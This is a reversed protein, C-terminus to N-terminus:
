ARQKPTTAIFDKLYFPEFYAVDEFREERYAHNALRSLYSASNKFGAIVEIHKEAAFLAALKDAGSGFLVMSQSSGLYEFSRPDVIVAAAPTILKLHSDFVATYVEMRRADVMPCLLTNGDVPNDAAFGTAMGALTDVGILPLGTAYCLGKATSVGIRLGTYSGPGKSIAVASLDGFSLGTRRLLEDILLTLRSAHVNPEDVDICAITEGNASLAASCVQTATEIQLIYHTSM